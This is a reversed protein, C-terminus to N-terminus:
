ANVAEKQEDNGKVLHPREYFTARETDAPVLRQGLFWGKKIGERQIAQVLFTGTTGDIWRAWPGMDMYSLDISHVDAWHIVQLNAIGISMGVHYPNSGHERILRTPLGLRHAELRIWEYLESAFIEREQEFDWGIRAPSRICYDMPAVGLRWLRIITQVATAVNEQKECTFSIQGLTMGEQLANRLGETVWGFVKDTHYEPHHISVSTAHLGGERLRRVYDRERLRIGNTYMTPVKGGARIARAIEPLDDRMTPEAGMLCVIPTHVALAKAVIWEASRDQTKNDPMHYCHKCMVNCRDTVEIMSMQNYTRRTFTHEGKLTNFALVTKWFTASKEAMAEQKGHVPCEKTIWVTDDDRYERRAELERYCTGCMSFTPISQM